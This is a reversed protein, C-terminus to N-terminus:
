DTTKYIIYKLMGRHETPYEDLVFLIFELKEGEELNLFGEIFTSQNGNIYTEILEQYTAQKM